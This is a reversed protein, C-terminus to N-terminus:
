LKGEEALKLVEAQSMGFLSKRQNKNTNTEKQSESGNGSNSKSKFLYSNNEDGAFTTVFDKISVGSRHTWEGKENQVLQSIVERYGM